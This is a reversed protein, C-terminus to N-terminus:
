TRDPNRKLEVCVSDLTIKIRQTGAPLRETQAQEDLFQVASYKGNREGGEQKREETEASSRERERQRWDSSLEPKKNAPASDLHAPRLM